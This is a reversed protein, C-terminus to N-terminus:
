AESLTVRVHPFNPDELYVGFGRKYNDSYNELDKSDSEFLTFKYDKSCSASNPETRIQLRMVYEGPAWCFKSSFFAIVPRVTSDEAIVGDPPLEGGAAKLERIKKNIDNKVNLQMEKVLREEQRSFPPFFVIIHAWEEHPKLRIHTLLVTAKDGPNQYYNKGPMILESKSSPNIVMELEKVKIERGGINSLILHLVVNPNGLHQSIVMNSSVEVDLKARKFWLRIPPLQSMIVATFAVAFSWFKWDHYFPILMSDAQM